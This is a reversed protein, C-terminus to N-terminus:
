EVVSQGLHNLVAEGVRHMEYSHSGKLLLVDTAQILPCLADTLDERFGFCRAEAQPSGKLYGRLFAESERGCVFFLDAPTKGLAEGLAEHIKESDVGLENICALAAVSRRGSETAMTLLYSFAAQISEPSANYSDDILTLAGYDLRKQRRGTGAYALLGQLVRNQEYGFSTAVAYAVMANQIMHWGFEKVCARTRQVEVLGNTARDCDGQCIIWSSGGASLEAEDVWLYTQPCGTLMADFSPKSRCVAVAQGLTQVLEPVLNQWDALISDEGNYVFLGGKQLGKLLALKAKALEERTGFQELHSQGINTLVAVDPQAMGALREMDGPRDIGLELVLYAQEEPISLLRQAVGFENNLNAETKSVEDPNEVCARLTCDIFDRTSTKGVSGSVAIVKGKLQRRYWAAIRFLGENKDELYLVPLEKGYQEALERKSLVLGGVGKKHVEALFQHADFRAGVVAVFLEGAKVTKSNTSVGSFYAQAQMSTPCIFDAGIAKALAKISYTKM